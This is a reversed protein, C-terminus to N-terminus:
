AQKDDPDEGQDTNQNTNEEQDTAADEVDETPEEEASAEQPEKEYVDEGKAISVLNEM